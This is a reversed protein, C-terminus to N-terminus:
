GGSLKLFIMDLVNDSIVNADPYKELIMFDQLLKYIHSITHKNSFEIIKELKDTNTILEISKTKKYFLADRLFYIINKFLFEFDNKLKEFDSEFEKILDFSAGDYCLLKDFIYDRKNQVEKNYFDLAIKPNGKCLKVIYDKPELGNQELIKAIESASYRKFSLVISRSLVTPLLREINNCTIIFLAYTPPEELTKLLANQASISLEEGEEIIFVKKDSFIPGRSLDKIIERISEVSIEKKDEQRKIIHFDPHSSAEFLRCSKCVGCSSKNECLIHKSFVRALLKKGFGKEGEFIYAHFPNKLAKKLAFVIEKQGVFTDLNM